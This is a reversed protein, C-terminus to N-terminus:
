WWDIRDKDNDIVSTPSKGEFGGTDNYVANDIQNVPSSSVPRFVM